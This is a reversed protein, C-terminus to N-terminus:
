SEYDDSPHGAGSTRQAKYWLAQAEETTLGVAYEYLLAFHVHKRANSHSSPYQSRIFDKAVWVPGKDTGNIYLPLLVGDLLIDRPKATEPVDTLEEYEAGCFVCQFPGFPERFEYVEADLGNKTNSYFSGKEDCVINTHVVQHGFFKAHSCVSCKM